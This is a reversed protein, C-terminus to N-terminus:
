QVTFSLAEPFVTRVFAFRPQDLTTATAYLTMGQAGPVAPIQLASSAAGNADLFGVSNPLLANGPTLTFSAMTDFWVPLFKGDPLPTAPTDSFSLIMLYVLGQDGPISVDLTTSQGAVVPGGLTMQPEVLDVHQNAQVDHLYQIQGSPWRVTVMDAQTAAGLGFNLRPDSSSQYGVGNRFWQRQVHAGTKLVVRAGFGDRNSVRGRARFKLWNGGVVENRYVAASEPAMAGPGATFRELVDLRGDDDFDAIVNAFQYFVHNMGLAASRNAWPIQASAPQAPNQYIKNPAANQVVHLDQWGDNDYDFWNCAWGTGGGLLGYTATADLYASTTPDWLQFLHDTPLDTVYFDVGGDCFVDTFDIGMGDMVVNTGTQVSVDTFTGDGNNRYLENAGFTQGKDNCLLLDVWGDEDYDMFASVLTPRMSGVGAAATVEVFTGNGQNQYLSNSELSGSLGSNRVSLYLDLWGDNDYDGFTAGYVDHPNDIGRAVAEENFTMGGQNVFLKVPANSSGVLVDPDGDNDFDAAVCCRVLPCIGLGAGGTVNTFQMGGDNRLLFFPANDPGPLLADMDGDGDFDACCLGTGNGAINYPLPPIGLPSTQKTFQQAPLTVAAALIAGALISHPLGPM